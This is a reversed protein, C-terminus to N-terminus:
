KQLGTSQYDLVVSSLCVNTDVRKQERKVEKDESLHFLTGQKM